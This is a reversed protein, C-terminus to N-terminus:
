KLSSLDVYDGSDHGVAFYVENHTRLFLRKDLNKTIIEDLVFACFALPLIWDLLEYDESSTKAIDDIEQLVDPQAYRNEPLYTPNCAWDIDDRDYSSAGVLYITPIEITNDLFKVIGIWFAVVNDPIPEETVIQNLWDNMSELQAEVELDKLEQWYPRPAYEQHADLLKNWAEIAPLKLALINIFLDWSKSHELEM